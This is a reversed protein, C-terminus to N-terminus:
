DIIKFNRLEDIEELPIGEVFSAPASSTCHFSVVICLAVAVVVLFCRV